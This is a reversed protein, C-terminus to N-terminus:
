STITHAHGQRIRRIGLKKSQACRQPMEFAPAFLLRMVRPQRGSLVLEKQCYPAVLVVPPRGDTFHRVIEHEAMVAGHFEDVTCIRCSEDPASSICLVM